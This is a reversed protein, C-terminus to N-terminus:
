LSPLDQAWPQERGKGSDGGAEKLPKSVQPNVLTQSSMAWGVEAWESVLWLLAGQTGGEERNSNGSQRGLVQQRCSFARTGGDSM